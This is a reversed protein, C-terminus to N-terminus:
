WGVQRHISLAFGGGRDRPLLVLHPGLRRDIQRFRAISLPLAYVTCRYRCATVVGYDCVGICYRADQDGELSAELAGVAEEM